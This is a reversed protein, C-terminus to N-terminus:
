FKFFKRLMRKALDTAAKKVTGMIDQVPNGTGSGAGAGSGAGSGTASPQAEDTKTWEVATKWSMDNKLYARFIAKVKDLSIQVDVSDYDGTADRYQLLHGKETKATQVFYESSLIAHGNDADDLTDLGSEIAQEDPDHIVTGNALEFQM